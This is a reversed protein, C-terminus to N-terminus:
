KNIKEQTHLFQSIPQLSSTTTRPTQETEKNVIYIIMGYSSSCSSAVFLNMFFLVFKMEENKYM